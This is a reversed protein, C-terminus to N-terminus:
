FFSEKIAHFVAVQFKDQNKKREMRSCRKIGLLGIDIEVM